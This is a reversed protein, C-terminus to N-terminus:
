NRLATPMRQASARDSTRNGAAVVVWGKPLVYDGVKRDLVLQMAVAMMQASATNVEDLFLIGTAGDREVQPLESPTLWDTTRTKANPVPIGRLDVPERINLRLDIVKCRRMAAMQHVIASKGIGPAGWLMVADSEDTYIRMLTAADAITCEHVNM